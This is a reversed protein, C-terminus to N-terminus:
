HRCKWKPLVPDVILHNSTSQQNQEWMSIIIILIMVKGIIVMMEWPSPLGLLILEADLALCTAPSWKYFFIVVQLFFIKSESSECTWIWRIQDFKCFMMPKAGTTNRPLPINWALSRFWKQDFFYSFTEVDTTLRLESNLKLSRGIQSSGITLLPVTETCCPCRAEGFDVVCRWLHHSSAVIEFM